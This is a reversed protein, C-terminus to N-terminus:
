QLKSALFSRIRAQLVAPRNFSQEDEPSEDDYDNEYPDDGSVPKLLEALSSSSRHRKTLETVKATRKQPREGRLFARVRAVLDPYQRAFETHAETIELGGPLADFRAKIAPEDLNIGIQTLREIWNKPLAFRTPKLRWPILLVRQVAQLHRKVRFTAAKYTAEIEEGPTWGRLALRKAYFSLSAILLDASDIKDALKAARARRAEYKWVRAQRNGAVGEERAERQSKTKAALEAATV